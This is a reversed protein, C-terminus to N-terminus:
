PDAFSPIRYRRMTAVINADHVQKGQVTRSNLRDILIATVGADEDAIEFESEFQRIAQTLAGPAPAPM